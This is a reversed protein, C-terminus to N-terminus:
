EFSIEVLKMYGLKFAMWLMMKTSFPIKKEKKVSHPLDNYTVITKFRSSWPKFMKEADNVALVVLAQKNGSKRVVANSKEVGKKNEADFCIRGDPFREALALFLPKIEEEHFYMLVGGSMAFLGDERKSEVEDLWKMDFASMAVNKERERLPVLMERAKIVEPLDLNIFRCLGNDVLSFNEECGAGINVITAKPHEKLYERARECMMQRRMAWVVITPESFQLLNFDYDIKGVAEEASEDKFVNPYKRSCVARGYLPMVLTEMVTDKELRIKSMRETKMFRFYGELGFDIVKDMTVFGRQNAEREFEDFTFLADESHEWHFLKDVIHICKKSLDAVYVCGGKRLVRHCEDFFKRWGEVHHLICFDLIIDLSEDEFAELNDASGEVFRANQLGLKRAIALQEAMIDMGTYSRPEQKMILCAAFGNGCGVELVDKDKVQLGLRRFTTLEVNEIYWKRWGMQMAKFEKDSLKM